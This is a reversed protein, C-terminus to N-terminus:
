KKGLLKGFVGMILQVVSNSEAKKNCGIIESLLAYVASGIAILTASDMEM